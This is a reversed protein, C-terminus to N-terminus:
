KQNQVNRNADDEEKLLSLLRQKENELEETSMASISSSYQNFFNEILVKIASIDPAYHKTTVKKKAPKQNGNEDFGYEVVVEDAEYGLAKKLLEERMLKEDNVGKQGAERCSQRYKLAM